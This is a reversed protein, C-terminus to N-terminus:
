FHFRRYMEMRARKGGILLTGAFVLLTFGLTGFPIMLGPILSFHYFLFPLVSLLCMLIEIVMYSQWNKNNVIMLVIVAVDMLVLLGPYAFRLSWGRFGLIYDIFWLLLFALLSQMVMKVQYGIKKQISFYLTIFGYIMGLGIVFTWWLSHHLGINIGFLVAEAVIASFIYVRLVFLSRKRGRDAYPYAPKEAQGDDQIDLICHCLPCVVVPDLIEIGCNKCIKKSM